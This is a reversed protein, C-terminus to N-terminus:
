NSPEGGCETVREAIPLTDPDVTRETVFAPSLNQDVLVGLQDERSQWSALMLCSGRELLEILSNNAGGPDVLAETRPQIRWVYRIDPEAPLRTLYSKRILISQDSENRAWLSGTPMVGEAECAILVGLVFAVVALRNVRDCQRWAQATM